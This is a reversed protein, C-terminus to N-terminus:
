EGGIHTVYLVSQGSSFLPRFLDARDTFKKLGLESYSRREVEGVVIFAISYLEILERARRLDVTEYLEKIDLVRKRFGQWGPNRQSVHYEWGLVIPLGTYMCIRSYLQYSPGHAELLTPTGHINENIWATIKADEPFKEQLFAIGNLTPRPGLAKAQSPRTQVYVCLVGGLLGLMLLCTSVLGFFYGSLRFGHFARLERWKKFVRQLVVVTAIGFLSWGAVYFKFITNARDMLFLVESGTLLGALTTVLVALLLTTRRGREAGNTIVALLATVAVALFFSLSVGSHYYSSLSLLAVTPVFALMARWKTGHDFRLSGAFILLLLGLFTPALWLGWHMIMPFFSNFEVGTVWGFHLRDGSAMALYFPRFLLMAILIVFLFEVVKVSFARIVFTVGSGKGSLRLPRFLICLAVVAGYSILDWTNFAVMSGFVLAVCFLNLLRRRYRRGGELLGSCLALLLVTFPMTMYHPHLDSFLFSWIPYETFAPSTFLRTTPWFFQDFDLNKGACVVLYAAQLNASLGIVLSGFVAWYKSKLLLLLLGYLTVLYLSFVTVVSLNYGFSPSITTLKHINAFALFGFYYYQMKQGAAWPDDPPLHEARVFYNLFSFDMPKEGWFIEPKFSTIIAMILFSCCFVAEAWLIEARHRALLRRWGCWSRRLFVSLCLWSAIVIILLSFLNLPSVLSSGVLWSLYTVILLGFAKSLSYGKDPSEPFLIATLPVFGWGIVQVAGLWLLLNVVEHCLQVILSM